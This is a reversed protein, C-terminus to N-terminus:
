LRLHPSAEGVQPRLGIHALIRDKTIRNAVAGGQELSVAGVIAYMAQALVMDYGSANLNDPQSSPTNTNPKVEDSLTGYRRQCGGYWMKYDMSNRWHLCSNTTHSSIEQEAV